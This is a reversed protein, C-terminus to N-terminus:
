TSGIKMPNVSIFRVRRTASLHKTREFSLFLGFRKWLEREWRLFIDAFLVVSPGRNAYREELSLLQEWEFRWPQKLELDITSTHTTIWKRWWRCRSDNRTSWNERFNTKRRKGRNSFFVNKKSKLQDCNPTRFDDDSPSCFERNWRLNAVRCETKLWM